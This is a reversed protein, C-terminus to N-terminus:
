PLVELSDVEIVMQEKTSLNKVALKGERYERDGIIVVYDYNKRSAQGILDGLKVIPALRVDVVVGMSRLKSAVRDIYSYDEISAILMCRKVTGGVKIGAQKLAIYTRDIGISFGTGPTKPGGYLSILTDYRGGGGISVNIYPTIVEFIFGTYYALGRAFGLDVFARIGLKRAAELIKALRSVAEQIKGNFKMSKSFEILKASDEARFSTLEEIFSKDASPYENLIKYVEDVLKKDLYHIIEDQVKEPIGWSSLLTRLIDVSGLKITYDKLNIRSYYDRLLLLQELDSYISSDGIYEVGAQIFERYRAFQPEEYRFASGVYYIKIPKPEARFYKLYIRAISATFEPRLCVERGAKDSFVYMSKSIEPGSKIAFLKFLEITPPIVYRYGYLEAVHQFERILVSIGESDPPLIDRMGRVPELQISM